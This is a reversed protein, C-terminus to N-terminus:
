FACCTCAPCCVGGGAPAYGAATINAQVANEVYCFDRSSEGDGYIESDDRAAEGSLQNAGGIYADFVIHKSIPREPDHPTGLVTPLAELGRGPRRRVPDQPQRHM